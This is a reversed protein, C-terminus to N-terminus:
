NEMPKRQPGTQGRALLEASTGYPRNLLKEPEAADITCARLNDNAHVKVVEGAAGPVLVQQM